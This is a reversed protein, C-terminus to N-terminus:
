QTGTHSEIAAISTDGAEITKNKQKWALARSESERLQKHTMIEALAKMANKALYNGQEAAIRYWKHAEPYDVPL